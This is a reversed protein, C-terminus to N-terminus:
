SQARVDMAREALTDYDPHDAKVVREMERDWAEEDLGDPGNLLSATAIGAAAVMDADTVVPIAQRSTASFARGFNLALTERRDDDTVIRRLSVRERGEDKLERADWASQRSSNIHDDHEDFRHAM